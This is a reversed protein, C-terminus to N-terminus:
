ARKRSQPTNSKPPGAYAPTCAVSGECTTRNYSITAIRGVMITSGDDRIVTEAVFARGEYNEPDGEVPEIGGIPSGEMYHQVDPAAPDIVTFNEITGEIIPMHIENNMDGIIAFFMVM